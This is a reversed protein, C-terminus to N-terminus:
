LELLREALRYRQAEDLVGARELLDDVPDPEPVYESAAVDEDVAARVVEVPEGLAAAIKAVHQDLRYYRVREGPVVATAMKRVTNPGLGADDALDEYTRGGPMGVGHAAFLLGMRSPVFAPRAPLTSTM